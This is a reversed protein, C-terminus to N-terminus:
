AGSTRGRRSIVVIASGRPDAGARLRELARPGQVPFASGAVGAIERLFARSQRSDRLLLVVGDVQGDRAKLALRRLTSQGDHPATEAEVGYRWGAGQFLADWARPDGRAPLPVETAWGLAPHLLERFDGLLGLHAADRIPEGGPYVKIALDLGVVASMRALLMVDVHELIGRELRSGTAISVGVSQCVERLSLNRDIRANRIETGVDLRLRRGRETGRDVQRCRAGVARAHVVLSIQRTDASGATM